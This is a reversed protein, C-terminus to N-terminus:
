RLPLEHIAGVKPQKAYTRSGEWHFIVRQPAERRVALEQNQIDIEVSPLSYTNQTTYFSKKM